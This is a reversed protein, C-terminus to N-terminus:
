SEETLVGGKLGIVIQQARLQTLKIAIWAVKQGSARTCDVGVSFQKFPLAGRGEDKDLGLTAGEGSKEAEESLALLHLEM